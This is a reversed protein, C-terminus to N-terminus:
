KGRQLAASGITGSLPGFSVLAICKSSTLSQLVYPNQFLHVSPVRFEHGPDASCCLATTRLNSHAESDGPLYTVCCLNKPRYGLNESESPILYCGLIQMELWNGISALVSPGPVVKLVVAMPSELCSVFSQGIWSSM